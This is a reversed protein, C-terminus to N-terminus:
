FVYKKIDIIQTTPRKQIIMRIAPKNKDAEEDYEVNEFVATDKNIVKILAGLSQGGNYLDRGISSNSFQMDVKVSTGIQIPNDQNTLNWLDYLENSFSRVNFIDKFEFPSEKHINVEQIIAKVLDMTIMSLEGAFKIIDTRYEPYKLMDDLINDFAESGINDFTKVYYIRTPRQLLNSDVHLDNTTLLFFRRYQTSLVGDMVSLVSTTKWDSYLKEYEDIFVIVDHHIDNIFSPLDEYFEPVVIVPLELANAILKATVSKGTGRLGNLIIGINGTTEAYTKEVRAIFKDQVDYVKYGFAFQSSISKLYLGRQPHKQVKYVGKDLVDMCQSTDTLFYLDGERSWVRPTDRVETEEIAEKM